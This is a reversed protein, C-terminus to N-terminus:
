FGHPGQSDPAADDEHSRDASRAVITVDPTDHRDECWRLPVGGIVKVIASM